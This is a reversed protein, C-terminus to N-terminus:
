AGAILWPDAYLAPAADGLVRPPWAGLDFWRIVGPARSAAGHVAAIPPGLPPFAWAVPWEGVALTEVAGGEFRGGPLSAAVLRRPAGGPVGSPEMWLARLDGGAGAISGLGVLMADARVHFSPSGIRGSTADLPAVALTRDPSVGSPDTEVWGAALAGSPLEVLHPPMGDPPGDIEVVMGLHFCDNSCTDNTVLNGDDCAEGPDVAGNGCEEIRCAPSCGDGVRSNGDDCTEGTEIVLNGCQPPDCADGVGDGDSDVQEPDRVRPCVDCADGVGDGDGDHQAPDPVTPCVDAADVVWDRDVDAAARLDVSVFAAGRGADAEGYAVVAPAASDVAWVRAAGTWGSVLGIAVVGPGALRREWVGVGDDLALEVRVLDFVPLGDVPVVEVRVITGGDACGCLAAPLAALFVALRGAVGFAARGRGRERRRLSPSFTRM